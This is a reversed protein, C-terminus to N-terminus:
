APEEQINILHRQLKGSQTRPLCAAFQVIKPIKYAALRERCHALIRMADLAMGHRRVVVAKIVEGLIEDDCGVVAVEEVADLEAIAAEVDEPQVRHAGTKIIDSRRGDIYLYGEDDFHGTDGTHLWGNVLVRATAEPDDWYGLMVNAGRAWIAGSQGPTAETGDERRVVLEVGNLPIGVSGPKQQRREPPLYTLRATAETQGYMIFLQAHPLAQTLRTQLAPAMPGGAQTVYRLHSLDYDPLRVRSVLLAFTSPVGALGTARSSALLEIFRHPYTLNREITVCAGAVLHTHLVSNGYSYHFPLVTVTSDDPGLRLYELISSTNASLNRHSLTVGKPRGTTGSTYLILAPADPEIAAADIAPPANADDLQEYRAGSLASGPPSGVLVVRTSEPLDRVLAAADPHDSGLFLWSAGCHRVWNLLEEARGATTLAAVVGGAAHVGYFIAPYELCNRLILAVRAGPQIGQARLARAVRQAEQWLQCYSWRRGDQILATAEPRANAASLLRGLLPICDAPSGNM